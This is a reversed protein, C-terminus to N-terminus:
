VVGGGRGTKVGKNSRHVNKYHHQKFSKQVKMQYIWLRYCFCTVIQTKFYLLVPKFGTELVPSFPPLAIRPEPVTPESVM